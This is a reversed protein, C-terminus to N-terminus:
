WMGCESERDEWVDVCIKAIEVMKKFTCTSEFFEKLEDDGYCEVFRDFGEEYHALSYKKFRKINMEQLVNISHLRDNAGTVRRFVMDLFFEDLEVNKPLSINGGSFQDHEEIATIEFEDNVSAKFWVQGFHLILDTM